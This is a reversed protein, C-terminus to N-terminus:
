FELWTGTSDIVWGTRSASPFQDYVKVATPWIGTSPANSMLPTTIGWKGVTTWSTGVTSNTIFLNSGSLVIRKDNPNGAAVTVGDFIINSCKYFGLGVPNTGDFTFSMDKFTVEGTYNALNVSEDTRVIWRTGTGGQFTISGSGACSPLLDLSNCYFDGDPLNFTIPHLITKETFETDMLEVFANYDTIDYTRARNTTDYVVFKMPKDFTVNDVWRAQSPSVSSDLVVVCSSQFSGTLLELKKDYQGTSGTIYLGAITFSEGTEIQILNDVPSSADGMNLGMMGNVTTGQCARIELIKRSSESGCGNFSVGRAIDIYYAVGSGDCGCANFSCYTLEDFWFGYDSCNVAYCSEMSLSTVLRNEGSGTFHYGQKAWATTVRTWNAMFTAVRVCEEICRYFSCDEVHMYPHYDNDALLVYDALYNANLYLNTLKRGWSPGDFLVMATITTDIELKIHTDRGGGIMGSTTEGQTSAPIIIAYDPQVPNVTKITYTVDPVPFFINIGKPVAYDIASQIAARDDAVGDGVAGFDKVNVVDAFRESLSRATTSGDATVQSNDANISFPAWITIDIQSNLPPAETFTTVGNQSVYDDFPNQKVGDIYCMAELTSAGVASVTFQVQSGDGTFTDHKPEAYVPAGNELITPNYAYIDVEVDLVPATTLIINSGNLVYDTYPEQRLGGVYLQVAKPDTVASSFPFSTRSGDGLYSDVTPVVGSYDGLKTIDEVLVVDQNGTVDGIRANPHNIIRNSNMDINQELQNPQTASLRDLKEDWADQITQFNDNILGLNYGSKVEPLTIPM